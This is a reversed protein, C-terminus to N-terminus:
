YRTTQYNVRPTGASFHPKDDTRSWESPNLWLAVGFQVACCVTIVCWDAAWIRSDSSWVTQVQERSYPCLSRLQSAQQFEPSLGPVRQVERAMLHWLESALV